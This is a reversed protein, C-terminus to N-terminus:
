LNCPILGHMKTYGDIVGQLVFTMRVSNLIPCELIVCLCKSKPSFSGVQGYQKKEVSVM